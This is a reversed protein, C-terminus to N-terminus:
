NCADNHNAIIYNNITNTIRTKESPALDIWAQTGKLGEWALDWYFQNSQTGGDFESTIDAITEVYHAAMQEHQWGKGFRRYYDYIGPFDGNALLADLTGGTLSLLTGENILSMLKRYM